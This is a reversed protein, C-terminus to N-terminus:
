SNARWLCSFSMFLLGGVLVWMGSCDSFGFVFERVQAAPSVLGEEGEELTVDGPRM